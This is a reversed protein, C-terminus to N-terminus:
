FSHFCGELKESASVSTLSALQKTLCPLECMFWVLMGPGKWIDAQHSEANLADREATDGSRKCWCRSLKLLLASLGLRCFMDPMELRAQWPSHLGWAGASLHVSLIVSDILNAFVPLIMWDLWPSVGVTGM